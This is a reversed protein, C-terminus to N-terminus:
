PLVFGSLDVRPGDVIGAGAAFGGADHPELAFTVEAPADPDAVAITFVVREGDARESEPEPVIRQIEARGLLARDIWIEAEGGAALGPALTFRVESPARDRMIRDYRVSLGDAEASAQALPGSGLLGALGAALVAALVVWAVRQVRWERRQFGLDQAVELDGVREAM